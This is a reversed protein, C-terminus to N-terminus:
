NVGKIKIEYDTVWKDFQYLYAILQPKTMLQGFWPKSMEGDDELLKEIENIDFVKYLISDENELREYLLNTVAELFAPNHTKPYPNKKRNIIKHPLVKKFAEKLIYKEVGNKYKYNPPLNWLYEVIKTDAFPVRAELTAGMTMRDKRDLLTKMFHTMNIYYLCKDKDKQDKRPLEKITRKYEDDIAKQLNIKLKPNLLKQREDINNIWPFVSDENERYFWPYGGFIEDACEGSLVVKNEKRIEESLYLLSADIDIMGPYDRLALTRDLYEVLTNNDIVIAKHDTKFKAKMTNIYKNDREVTFSNKQFNVENFEYDISYTRLKGVTNKSAIATIISSDLGGSLLTSVGVDSALQRKIADTVLFRVKNTAEEFTDDCKETKVNWYRKIRIHNHFNLYHGPRLEYIDQFPTDGLPMSPGLALLNALEQKTIVPRVIDSALISKISSAFIFNGNKYTYYLPKVGLRDRGLFLNKTIENFVGFAYIGELHEMVKERYHVYAMLVVETDCNTKFMYGKEILDNKLELTNYLEGNYVITFENYSMPQNGNEPDIIALRKHGLMMNKTLKYGTHDDGRHSMLDLMTLFKEKTPTKGFWGLIACM